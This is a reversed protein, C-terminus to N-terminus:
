ARDFGAALAYRMVEAQTHLDLKRMVAKRHDTVTAPRIGMLEATEDISFGRALSQLVAIERPSLLKSFALPDDLLTARARQISPSLFLGGKFVTELASRLIEVGDNKHVIGSVGLEFARHLLFAETRNTLVVVRRRVRDPLTEAWALAVGDHLQLDLLIADFNALTAVASPLEVLRQATEVVVAPYWERLRSQLLDVLLTEDEVLLLQM